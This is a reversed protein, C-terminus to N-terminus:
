GCRYRGHSQPVCDRRRRCQSPTTGTRGPPPPGFQVSLVLDEGVQGVLGKWDVYLNNANFSLIPDGNLAGNSDISFGIFDPLVDQTDSIRFGNFTNDGSWPVNWGYHVTIATGSFDYTIPMGNWGFANSLEPGPGGTLLFPGQHTPYFPLIACSYSFSKGDFGTEPAAM